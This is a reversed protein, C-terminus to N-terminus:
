DPLRSFNFDEEAVALHAAVVKQDETKRDEAVVSVGSVVIMWEIGEEKSACRSM